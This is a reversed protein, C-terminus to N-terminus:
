DTGVSRNIRANEPGLKEVGKGARCAPIRTIKVEAEAAVVFRAEHGPPSPISRPGVEVVIDIALIIEMPQMQVISDIPGLWQTLATVVVNVRIYLRGVRLVVDISYVGGRWWLPSGSSEDVEM